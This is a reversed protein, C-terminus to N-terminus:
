YKLNIVVLESQTGIRYQPGWLGLGSSVYYHTKSKKLYGHGLEFMRKVFLNGPFFQGNHTHGSIQLDIGNDEAEQLHFPQHDMLILPKTTDLGKIIESLKKRKHNTRDDRGVIYFSSDVLSVEDRLFTIGAKKLYEATANPTEAYHEHNGNIAFVGLPAKISRLEEDMHQSIVPKMERDSVNGPFLVIDPHQDNILKVYKQLQKKDISVGLHIDSAAVIKLTKHQLPKETNLNLTVVEPHNFKINGIVLAVVTSGLTIYMAWMRFAAMGVPAFHIFYNAIRVIDVVLFSLFLYIFIIMYTYGVFTVAKGVAPPMSSGFIMGAFMSIFLTLMSILFVPRIVSVAPLAQWGRAVVYGNMSIIIALILIFFGIRM